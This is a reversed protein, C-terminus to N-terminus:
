ADAFAMGFEGRRRGIAMEGMEPAKNIGAVPASRKRMHRSIGQWWVLCAVGAVNGACEFAKLPPAVPM